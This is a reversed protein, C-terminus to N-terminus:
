RVNFPPYPYPKRPANLWRAARELDALLGADIEVLGAVLFIAAVLPKTAAPPLGMAPTPSM